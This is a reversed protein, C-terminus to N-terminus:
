RVAEDVLGAAKEDLMWLLEGDPQVLQAPLASGAAAPILVQRVIAAKELGSVVFMATRAANILPLTMTIRHTSLREVWTDVCLRQREELATTGPFLSATHGDTGLGLLMLDFRPMGGEHTVGTLIEEEYQRGVIVADPNETRVRHIQTPVVPAAALMTESAMRYNSEPDDPPVHREDSWFFEIRSWPVQTRLPQMTALARYLGRPTSGGALAVFCRSRVKVADATVRLFEEAADRSLDDATASIHIRRM